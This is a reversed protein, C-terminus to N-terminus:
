VFVAIPVQQECIWVVIRWARIEVKTSSYDYTSFSETMTRPYLNYGNIRYGDEYELTSRAIKIVTKNWTSGAILSCESIIAWLEEDNLLVIKKVSVVQKTTVKRITVLM